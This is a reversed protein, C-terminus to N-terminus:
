KMDQSEIVSALVARKGEGLVKAENANTTNSSCALSVGIRFSSHLSEGLPLWRWRSLSGGSSHCCSRAVEGLVIDLPSWAVHFKRSPASSKSSSESSCYVGCEDSLDEGDLSLVQTTESTGRAFM